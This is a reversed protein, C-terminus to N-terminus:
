VCKIESEEPAYVGTHQVTVASAAIAFEIASDIDENIIYSYALAALFTDGAWYCRSSWNRKCSVM